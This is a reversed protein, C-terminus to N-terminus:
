KGTWTGQGTATSCYGWNDVLYVTGRTTGLTQAPRVNHMPVAQYNQVTAFVALDSPLIPLNEQFVTWLVGETCPPATLSGSYRFYSGNRSPYTSLGPIMYDLYLACGPCTYSTNSLLVNKVANQALSQIFGMNYTEAFVGGVQDEYNFSQYIVSMVSVGANGYKTASNALADAYSSSTNIISVFQVEVQSVMNSFTNHEGGTMPPSWHFQMYQLVYGTSLGGGWMTYTNAPVNIQLTYGNNMITYSVLPTNYFSSSFTLPGNTFPATFGSCTKTYQVLNIPSQNTGTQCTSPWGTSGTPGYTTDTLDYTYRPTQAFTGGTCMTVFIVVSVVAFVM